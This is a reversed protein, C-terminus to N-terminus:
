KYARYFDSEHDYGYVEVSPNDRMFIGAKKIAENKNDIANEVTGAYIEEIKESEKYIIM